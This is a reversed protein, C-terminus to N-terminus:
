EPSRHVISVSRCLFNKVGGIGTAGPPNADSDARFNTGEEEGRVDLLRSACRFQTRGKARLLSINARWRSLEGVIEEDRARGARADLHRLIQRLVEPSLDRRRPEAARMPLSRLPQSTSGCMSEGRGICHM